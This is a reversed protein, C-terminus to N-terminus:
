LNTRDALDSIIPLRYNRGQLAFVIGAVSLAAAVLLVATFVFNSVKDILFLAAILEILFLMVGQRAHFRAEKNEKMKLLPVFCLFPIYSMVAALRGEETGFQEAGREQNEQEGGPEDNLPPVKGSPKEDSQNDFFSDSM